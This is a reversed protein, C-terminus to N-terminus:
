VSWLMKRLVRRKYATAVRCAGPAAPDRQGQWFVTIVNVINRDADATFVVTLKTRPDTWRIEERRMMAMEWKRAQTQAAPNKQKSKANNYTRFFNNVALRVEPVTVGRLDMRYQAHSTLNMRKFKWPGRETEVRYVARADPNSLDRGSEVLDILKDEMRPNRITKDIRQVVHCPGGPYGLPPQLDATKPLTHPDLKMRWVTNIEIDPRGLRLRRSPHMNTNVVRGGARRVVKEVHEAADLLTEEDNSPAHVWFQVKHIRESSTDARDTFVEKIAPHRPLRNGVAEWPGYEMPDYVDVTKGVKAQKLFKKFRELQDRSLNRNDIYYSFVEAFDEESVTSGYESVAPVDDFWQDFRARDGRDMFKYYYRHGLEHAVLRALGPKPDAYIVVRDARIDYHAGVGFKAGYPNTGGCSKCYVFFTGYWLKGLGKQELLKKAKTLEQVFGKVESPHRSERREVPTGEYPLDKMVVKVKGISFERDYTGWEIAGWKNVIRTLLALFKRSIEPDAKKLAKEVAARIVESLAKEVLRPNEAAMADAEDADLPPPLGMDKAAGEILSYRHGLGNRYERTGPTVVGDWFEIERRGEYLADMAEKLHGLAKVRWKYIETHSKKDGRLFTFFGKTFALDSLLADVWQELKKLKDPAAMYGVSATERMLQKWTKRVRDIWTKDITDQARAVKPEAKLGKAKEAEAKMQEAIAPPPYKWIKFLGITKNKKRGKPIPEIEVTPNGKHDKGWAVIKGKKNKYKGFTVIDGIEFYDRAILYRAAVRRKSALPFRQTRVPQARKPVDLIGTYQQGAREGQGKILRNSYVPPTGPATSITIHPQRNTLRRLHPPLEVTLAQAKDDTFSRKARFKVLTGPEVKELDAETPEYLVTIHDAHVTSHAPPHERLLARRSQPTLFIGIYKPLGM